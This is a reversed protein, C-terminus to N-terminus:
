LPAPKKRLESWAAELLEPPFERAACRACLPALTPNSVLRSLAVGKGLVRGGDHVTPSQEGVVSLIWGLQQYLGEATFRDTPSLEFPERNNCEWCFILIRM